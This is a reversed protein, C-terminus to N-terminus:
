APARAGGEAKAIAAEANALLTALSVLALENGGSVFAVATADPDLGADRIIAKTFAVLGRLQALLEPAAAMVRANAEAQGRPADGEDSVSIQAIHTWNYVEPGGAVISLIDPGLPDEVRWPAPTHRAM